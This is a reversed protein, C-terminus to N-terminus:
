PNSQQARAASAAEREGAGAAPYDVEGGLRLELMDTDPPLVRDAPRQDLAVAPRRGAGAGLLGIGAGGEINIAGADNDLTGTYAVTAGAPLATTGGEILITGTNDISGPVTQVTGPVYVTM